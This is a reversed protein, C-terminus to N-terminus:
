LVLAPDQGRLANKATELNDARGSAVLWHAAITASRQLGLQCHILVRRQPQQERIFDLARCIDESRPPVLDLLPLNFYLAQERFAVPANAEATLDLVALPGESVLEAAERGSPKRGFFM